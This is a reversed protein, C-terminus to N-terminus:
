ASCTEALPAPVLKAYNLVQIHKGAMASHKKCLPIVYWKLDKGTAKQVLAGTV